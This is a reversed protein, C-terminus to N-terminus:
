LIPPTCTVSPNLARFEAIQDPTGSPLTAQNVHSDWFRNFEVVANAMVLNNGPVATTPPACVSNVYTALGTPGLADWNFAASQATHCTRCSRAVVDTYIKSYTFGSTGATTNPWAPPVYAFGQPGFWGNILDVTATTVGSPSVTSLPGTLLNSNLSHIQSAQDAETFGPQDSFAFNGTDYPLFYADLLPSQAKMYTSGGHCAICAGPLYKEGRQDLNVSPLLQGSPGFAFFRTYQAGNGDTIYDMAVCAVLNKGAVANSIAIDVLAQETPTPTPLSVTVLNGSSDVAPLHNCVYAAYSTSGSTPIVSRHERTLNLDVANIFYTSPVGNSASFGASSEWQAFTFAPLFNGTQDCQGTASETSTAAGVAGYYQCASQATDEGHATLFYNAPLFANSIESTYNGIVAPFVQQLQGLTSGNLTATISTIVTGTPTSGAPVNGASATVNFFPDTLVNCTIGGYPPQGTAVVSTRTAPAGFLDSNVALRSEYCNGSLDTVLVYVFHIGTGQPLMWNVAASTAAPATPNGSSDVFQGDTAKWYFSFGNASISGSVAVSVSLTPGSNVLLALVTTTSGASNSATVTYNQQPTVMTPSGLIQGTSSLSLGAPLAPTVSYQTVVGNVSPPLSVTKGVFLPTMTGYSLSTPPTAIEAVNSGNAPVDGSAGWQQSVVQNNSTDIIYWDGDSPRWVAIDTKGDGDYDGPLPIDGTEGWQRAVVQNNSSKIIYWYGTSPRFAAIDTKGDGDYDGPVPIDGAEGWQRAVVQNNSSQVVYWYGTSPRFVAIDTKGDGDYDGPVPIDGAEGWQRAVVRNNSSQVIYWYGTSPRFVAIDTKGDGDYDGPVPIDGAEGWQHAVTHNNSSQSIYWYGNSPRWVAVDRTGDGDYDGPVPIDGSEGWQQSVIQNNSQITYWYGNSTRWVTIDAPAGVAVTAAKSRNVESPSPTPVGNIAAGTVLPGVGADCGAILVSLLLVLSFRRVIFHVVPFV